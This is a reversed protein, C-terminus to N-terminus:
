VPYGRDGFQVSIWKKESFEDISFTSDERGTGSSKVGGFPARRSGMVTSDNIHIMGAEIKPAIELARSIDNTLLAASLGYHNDNCLQLAENEDAAKVVSIVPGFCEEYFIRMEPTVDAVVSPAYYPGEHTGGTLVKAGREVADRILEDIVVCKEEHILPGIITTPDHPDGSKVCSAKSALKECFADYIAAEAIIRSGAMCIQGQHFLGSFACIDVAKDLDFDKCVIIPNKGGMELAFRTLNQAATVAIQKGVETSGTFAVMKIRDDAILEEAMKGSCPIVSFLGKPLGAAELCEAIILGTVPTDSSPKLLVANGAALAFAVKNLALLVPYNFPAIALITGLPQLICASVQGSIDPPYLHGDVRRCEGAAARFINACESLEGMTKMFASGSEEILRIAFEEMNKEIYDAAKLLVREREEALKSEWEKQAKVAACLAHEIEDPGAFHVRAFISGDAPNRDEKIEGSKTDVWEGALFLKYEKM